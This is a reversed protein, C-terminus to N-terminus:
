GLTFNEPSASLSTEILPSNGVAGSSESTLENRLLCPPCRGAYSRAPWEIASKLSEASVIWWPRCVNM